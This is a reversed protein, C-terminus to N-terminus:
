GAFVADDYRYMGLNDKWSYDPEGLPIDRCMQLTWLPLDAGAAISLPVGGGFRPNIEIFTFSGDAQLFGQLTICGVAGPLCEAVHRAADILFPNKRTIGKSVEGARTEIRLRPVITKVAGSFDVFVDITYEEGSVLEQVMADPIYDLFFRLERENRVVTVGKGSSGNRPKVMLPYSFEGRKVEEETFVRPTPIGHEQFFRYTNTKDFSIENVRPSSLVLRVGEQEFRERNEALLTLETDILPIIADIKEERCIELLRDLYGPDTVPPVLYHKDSTFATPATAKLDATIVKGPIDHRRYAEQFDRILSVRRGSSTFLLHTAKM